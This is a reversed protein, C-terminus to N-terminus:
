LGMHHLIHLLHPCFLDHGWVNYWAAWTYLIIVTLFIHFAWRRLFVTLGVVVFFQVAKAVIPGLIPGLVYAFTRVAPHEEIGPGHILMFHITSAMDALCALATLALLVRYTHVYGQWNERFRTVVDQFSRM